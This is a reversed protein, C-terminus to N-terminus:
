RMKATCGDDQDKQADIQQILNTPKFTQAQPTPITNFQPTLFDTEYNDFLGADDLGMALVSDPSERYQSFLETDFRGGNQRGLWDFNMNLNNLGALNSGTNAMPPTEEGITAM